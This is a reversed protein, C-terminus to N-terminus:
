VKTNLLDSDFCIGGSGFCLVTLGSSMLWFIDCDVFIKQLKEVDDVKCTTGKYEMMMDCMEFVDEQLGKLDGEEKHSHIESDLQHCRECEEKLVRRQNNNNNDGCLNLPDENDKNSVVVECYSPKSYCCVFFLGCLIVLSAFM